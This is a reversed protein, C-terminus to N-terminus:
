LFLVFFSLDIILFLNFITFDEFGAGRILDCRTISSFCNHSLWRSSFRKSSFAATVVFEFIIWVVEESVGLLKTNTFSANTKKHVTVSVRQPLSLCSIHRKSTSRNVLTKVM